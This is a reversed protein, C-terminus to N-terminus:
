RSRTSTSCILWGICRWRRKEAERWGKSSSPPTRPRGSSKIRSRKSRPCSIGCGTIRTRVSVTSWFSMPYPLDAAKGNYTDSVRELIQKRIVVNRKLYVLGEIIGEPAEFSAPDTGGTFSYFLSAVPARWDIVMPHDGADAKDFGIKGIYLPKKAGTGNEQFDLRGFYPEPLSKALAQRKEERGAELVQETFDHGTYVPIGRLRELQRDIEVIVENLRSEEEQYASQFSESM